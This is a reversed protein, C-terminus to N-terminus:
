EEMTELVLSGDEIIVYVYNLNTTGLVNVSIKKDDKSAQFKIYKGEFVYDSSQNKFHEFMLKEIKLREEIVLISKKAGITEVIENLVMSFWSLFFAFVVLVWILVFGSKSKM